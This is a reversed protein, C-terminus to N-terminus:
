LSGGNAVPLMKLQNLVKRLGVAVAPQCMAGGDYWELRLGCVALWCLGETVVSIGMNELYERAAQWYSLIVEDPEEDARMHARLTELKEPSIM